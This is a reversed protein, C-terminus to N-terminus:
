LAYRLPVCCDAGNRKALAMLEFLRHPVRLSECSYQVVGLGHGGRRHRRPEPPLKEVNTEPVPQAGSTDLLTASWHITYGRLYTKQLWSAADFPGKYERGRHRCKGSAM